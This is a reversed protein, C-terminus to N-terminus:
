PRGGGGTRRPVNGAGGGNGTGTGNGAGNGAGNGGRTGSEAGTAGGTAAGGIAELLEQMKGPQSLMNTASDPNRFALLDILRGFRAHPVGEELQMSGGSEESLWVTVTVVRYRKEPPITSRSGRGTAASAGPAAEAEVAKFGVPSESVSWRYRHAGYELPTLTSPMASKDDLYQLMMRNALEGCALTNTQRLELAQMFSVAGLVTSCLLAVIVIAAVVELLSM